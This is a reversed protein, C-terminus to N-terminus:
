LPSRNGQFVGVINHTDLTLQVHAPLSFSSRQTRVLDLFGTTHLRELAFHPVDFMGSGFMHRLHNQVAPRGDKMVRVLQALVPRSWLFAYGVEDQVYNGLAFASSEATANDHADLLDVLIPLIGADVVPRLFAGCSLSLHEHLQVCMRNPTPKSMGQCMWLAWDAPMPASKDFLECLSRCTAPVHTPSLAIEKSFQTVVDHMFDLLLSQPWEEAVVRVHALYAMTRVRRGIAKRKTRFTDALLVRWMDLSLATPLSLALGQPWLVECTKWFWWRTSLSEAMAHVQLREKATNVRNLRDGDLEPHLSLLLSFLHLAAPEEIRALVLAELVGDGFEHQPFASSKVINYLGTFGEHRRRLDDNMALAVCKLLAQQFVDAM